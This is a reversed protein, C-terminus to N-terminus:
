VIGQGWNGHFGYPVRHPLKITALPQDEINMADIIVVDSRHEEERYVVALLFGEGEGAQPSRPVFVPESTFSNSGFDHVRRRGSQHDYLFLANLSGDDATEQM